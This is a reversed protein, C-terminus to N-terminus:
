GLKGRLKNLGRHLLGAVSATTKGTREAVENLTLGQLHHLVIVSQQNEPLESIAKTIHLMSEANEACLSPSPDQIPLEGTGRMWPHEENDLSQEREINRKQRRLARGTDAINHALMRSLWKALEGNTSGRFKELELFAEMLTEQVIDSSDFKGQFQLTVGRAQRILFSRFDQLQRLSNDTNSNEHSKASM